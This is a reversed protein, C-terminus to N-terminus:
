ILQLGSVKIYQEKTVDKAQGKKLKKAHWKTFTRILGIAEDIIEEIDGINVAEYFENVEEVM